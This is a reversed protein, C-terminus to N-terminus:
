IFKRLDLFHLRNKEKSTDERRIILEAHMIKGRRRGTRMTSTSDPVSVPAPVTSLASLSESYM